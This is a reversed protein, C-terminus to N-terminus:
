DSKEETLDILAKEKTADRKAQRHMKFKQIGGAVGGVTLMIAIPAVAGIVSAIGAVKLSQGVTIDASKTNLLSPTTDITAITEDM